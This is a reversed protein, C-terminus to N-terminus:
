VRNSWMKPLRKKATEVVLDVAQDINNHRATSVWTIESTEVSVKRIINVSCEWEGVPRHRSWDASLVLRDDGNLKAITDLHTQFDRLIQM